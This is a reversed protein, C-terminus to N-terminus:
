HACVALVLSRVSRSTPQRLKREGSCGHRMARHTIEYWLGGAVKWIVHIRHVSSLAKIAEGEKRKQPKIEPCFQHM